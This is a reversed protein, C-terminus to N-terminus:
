EFAQVFLLVDLEAVELEERVLTHIKPHTDAALLQTRESLWAHALGLETGATAGIWLVRPRPPEALSILPPEPVAM